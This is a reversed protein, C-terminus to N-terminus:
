VAATSRRGNMRPKPRKEDMVNGCRLIERICTERVVQRRQEGAKTKDRANVVNGWAEQTLEHALRPLADYDIGAAAAAARKVDEVTEFGEMLNVRDFNSDLWVSARALMDEAIEPSMDDEM